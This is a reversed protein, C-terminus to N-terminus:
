GVQNTFVSAETMFLIDALGRPPIPLHVCKEGTSYRVQVDEQHSLPVRSWLELQKEVATVM